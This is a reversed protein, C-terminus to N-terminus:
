WPAGYHAPSTVLAGLTTRHVWGRRGDPCDVLRYAGSRDVLAVEDGAVLDGITRGRIEDPADLLPAVAYRILRREATGAVSDPLVGFVLSPGAAAPNHAAGMKRAEILSPRRWRPMSDEPELVTAVATSTVISRDRGAVVDGVVADLRADPRQEGFRWFPM